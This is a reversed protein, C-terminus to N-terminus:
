QDGSEYELVQFTVRRNHRGHKHKRLSSRTSGLALVRLNDRPVTAQLLARGVSEARRKSLKETFEVNDGSSAHGGVVIEIRKGLREGLDILHLMNTALENLTDRQDRNATASTQNSDFRIVSSHVESKYHAFHRLEIDVLGSADVQDIAVSRNVYDQLRNIWAHHAEGSITLLGDALKVFVTAPPDLHQSIRRWEIVESVDVYPQWRSDIRELLDPNEVIEIPALAVPDRMGVLLYRDGIRKSSTVVYGPTRRLRSVYEEFAADENILSTTRIQQVGDLGPSAAVLREIWARPAAGSVSLVGDDFAIECTPPPDLLQRIRAERLATTTIDSPRWNSTMQTELIEAPLLLAPHTSQSDYAGEIMYADGEISAREVIIDESTQLMEVYALWPADRDVVASLDVSVPFMGDDVLRRARHLWANSAIGSLVIGAQNSNLVVSTPMRLSDRVRSEVIPRDTSLYSTWHQEIEDSHIESDALISSPTAALEDRMGHLYFQGNQEGFRTVTIGPTAELIAISGQWAQERQALKSQYLSSSYWWWGFLAALSLVMVCSAIMGIPLQKKDSVPKTQTVLCSDLHPESKIFKSTDGDFEDIACGLQRRIGEHAEELTVKLPAPPEGEIVAAIM